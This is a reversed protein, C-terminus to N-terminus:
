KLVKALTTSLQAISIPKAIHDNMGSDLAKQRDESFANATMAIIPTSAKQKDEMNRIASAAEYGSMKPMQIDTMVLDYFGADNNEIADITMKGNEVRDVIFGLDNLIAVAIEANLDNDEALLIRKGKFAALDEPAIHDVIKSKGANQQEIQKAMKVQEETPIELPLKITVKTGKGLKSEIQIDGDMLDIIKKVIPMGLGTGTIKSETSSHERSFEDFIHPLFEESIGVGSDESIATFMTYGPKDCESEILSLKVYGGAPTYKIANSIINLTLERIKTEDGIVYEHILHYDNSFTLGSEHALDTFVDDTIDEFTQTNIINKELSIKGSEIRSMELVNNILSLLFQSSNQIKSIYDICKEQNDLNSQLLNTFGIIANMPTRIDHSMNFLFASKAKNAEEAQKRARELSNNMRDQAYKEETVDGVFGSVSITGDPEERRTGGASLYIIGKQPHNWELIRTKIGGNRMIEFDDQIEDITNRSLRSHYYELAERPSFDKKSIGLIEKWKDNGSLGNVRGEGDFTHKWIGYGADAVVQNYEEMTKQFEEKENEQVFAHIICTGILLGISYIPLLPHFVQAFVTFVLVIGFLAITIHRQKKTGKSNQAVALSKIITLGFLIVQGGLAVYRVLHTQFNGNEDFSFFIQSFFNIFLFLISCVIFLISSVKLFKQFGSKTNLYTSVYKSWLVVTVAGVLYYVVTDVYLLHTQQTYALYGWLADVIYYALVAKLFHHYYKQVKDKTDRKFLDHNIIVHVTLAIIDIVSYYILQM